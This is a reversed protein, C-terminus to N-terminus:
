SGAVAAPLRASFLEAANAHMVKERWEPPLRKIMQDPPDFDWHPHDSAFCLIDPAGVAELMSWLLQDNGDTHELPQTTFRVHERLVESPRRTVWPVEARLGRWNTDLRWMIGPLWALGGEMMLVKLGPVRDFTGHCILSVLHSMISCGSGLTHWEIYFSPLGAGGSSQSLGMGEGGSHIAVPMGAETAAEFIPLYRPEGYPRESGGVLLVSVFRPDDALRRIEAAAALPDQAPVLISGRLRPERALWCEAQWDNHARAFEAARYPNPMLSVTVGIDGTLLGIDVGYPDLVERQILDIRSAPEGGPGIELEDRHWGMPHTYAYGPTGLAPMARFWERQAPDVFGLFEEIDGIQNHIDCDIM